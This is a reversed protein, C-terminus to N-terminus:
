QAPESEYLWPQTQRQATEFATIADGQTALLMATEDWGNLLAQKREPDIEFDLSLGGALITQAPLDIHFAIGAAAAAGLAAVKDAPLTIPLVGNRFCNGHFIESYSQAIICRIGIDAMSWVAHERSSGSGFNAGTVLIPAGRVQPRNLPFDPIETGDPLFRRDHFAYTGLGERATILLFRAPFIIDTDVNDEPLFAAPGSLTTFPKLSM